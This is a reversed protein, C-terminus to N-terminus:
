TGSRRTTTTFMGPTTYPRRQNIKDATMGFIFINNQGVEKLIEANAGDLTGITLAGSLQLKMNGTGSAETGALSIPESLNADPVLREALSVRCNPVFVAEFWDRALPDNIIVETIQHVFKIM